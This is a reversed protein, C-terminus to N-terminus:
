RTRSRTPFLSGINWLVFPLLLLATRAFIALTASAGTLGEGGLHRLPIWYFGWLLSAGGVALESALSRDERASGEALM